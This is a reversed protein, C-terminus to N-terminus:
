SSVAETEVEIFLAQYYRGPLITTFIAQSEEFSMYRVKDSNYNASSIITGIIIGEVRPPQHIVQHSAKNGFREYGCGM